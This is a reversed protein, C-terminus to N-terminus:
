YVKVMRNPEVLEKKKRSERVDRTQKRIKWVEEAFSLQRSGVKCCQRICFFFQSGLRV